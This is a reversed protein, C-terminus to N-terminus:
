NWSLGRGYQPAGYKYYCVYRTDTTSIAYCINSTCCLLLLINRATHVSSGQVKQCRGSILLCTFNHQHLRMTGGADHCSERRIADDKAAKLGSCFSRRNGHQRGKHVTRTHRLIYFIRRSLVNFTPNKFSLYCNLFFSYLIRNEM